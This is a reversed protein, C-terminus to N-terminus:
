RTGETGTTLGTLRTLGTGDANVLWIQNLDDSKASFSNATQRAVLEAPGLHRAAQHDSCRLRDNRGSWLPYSNPEFRLDSTQSAWNWCLFPAGPRSFQRCAACLFPCVRSFGREGTKSGALEAGKDNRSHLLPVL